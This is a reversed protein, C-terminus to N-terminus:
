FVVKKVIKKKQTKFKNNNEHKSFLFQIKAKLYKLSFYFAFKMSDLLIM